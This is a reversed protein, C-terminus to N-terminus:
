KHMKKITLITINISPSSVYWNIKEKIACHICLFYDISYTKYLPIAMYLIQISHPLGTVYYLSM